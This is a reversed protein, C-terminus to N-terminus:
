ASIKRKVLLKEEQREKFYTLYSYLKTRYSSQEKNNICLKNLISSLYYIIESAEVYQKEQINNNNNNIVDLIQKYEEINKLSESSILLNFLMYNISSFNNILADKNEILFSVKEKEIIKEEM